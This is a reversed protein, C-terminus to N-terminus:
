YGLRSRPKRNGQAIEEPLFFDVRLHLASFNPKSCRYISESVKEFLRVARAGELGIIDGDESLEFLIDEGEEWIRSVHIFVDLSEESLLVMHHRSLEETEM